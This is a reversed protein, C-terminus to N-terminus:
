RRLISPEGNELHYGKFESGNKLAKKLGANDFKEILSVFEIPFQATDDHVVRSMQSGARLTLSHIADGAKKMNLEIMSNMAIAKLRSVKNETSKKKDQLHKIAGALADSDANLTKIIASYSSFKDELGIGELTDNITQEDIEDMALIAKAEQTLDFLNM